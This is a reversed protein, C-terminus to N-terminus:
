YTYKPLYNIINLHLRKFASQSPIQYQYQRKVKVQVKFNSVQFIKSCKNLIKKFNQAADWPLIKTISGLM